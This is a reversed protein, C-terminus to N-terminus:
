INSQSHWAALCDAPATPIGVYGAALLPKVGPPDAALRVLARTMQVAIRTTALTKATVNRSTLQMGSNARSPVSRAMAIFTIGDSEGIDHITVIGPHNLSSATRAERQFRALRSRDSAVDRPLVKIAVDRQLKVHRARYVEGMGGVGIVDRIEYVGLRTGPLIPM